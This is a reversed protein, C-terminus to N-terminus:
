SGWMGRDWTNHANFFFRVPQPASLREVKSGPRRPCRKERYAVATALSKQFPLRRPGRHLGSRASTTLRPDLHPRERRPGLAERGWPLCWFASIRTPSQPGADFPGPPFVRLHGPAGGYEQLSKQREPVTGSLREESPVGASPWRSTSVLGLAPPSRRLSTAGPQASLQISVRSTRGGEGVNKGGRHPPLSRPAAPHITMRL